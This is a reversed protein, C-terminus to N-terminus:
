EPPPCRPRPRSDTPPLGHSVLGVVAATALLAIVPEVPARYRTGGDAMYIMSLALAATLLPLVLARRRRERWLAFLAFPLM